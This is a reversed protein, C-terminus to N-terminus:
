GPQFSKEEPLVESEVVSLATEFIPDRDLPRGHADRYEVAAIRDILLELAELPTVPVPM